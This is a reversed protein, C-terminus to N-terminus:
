EYRLAVMPDVKTARRAPVFCAVLATALLIFSVGVYTAPDTATVEFLLSALLRSLAFAGALGLAIGILTMILGQGVILKLIDRREAGLAIRIGVEHTRQSVAYSIVGYLGIVSLLMGMAAFWGLLAAYFRPQAVVDGLREDMTMVNEVVVRPDVDLLKNRVTATLSSPDASARVALSIFSDPSQSFPIYLFPNPEQDYQRVDSVVGIVIPKQDKKWSWLFRKGVPDEGPWALQAVRQSVVIVPQTEATDADTFLRGSILRIGMTQFYEPTVPRPEIEMESDPDGALPGELMQSRKNSTSFGGMTPLSGALAADIVGPTAQLREVVERAFAAQEPEKTRSLLRLEMSLVNEANFGIDISTLRIFSNIMLGAGVLLIVALAVESIVLFSRFGRLPSSATTASQKLSTQLDPKSAHLSPLLGFLIGTLLSAALTFLFVREDLSIEVMRTMWKPTLWVILKLSWMVLLFALAGGALSLVVSETLMQGILRRRNAGLVARIAIEKQRGVGHALLLNAVNVCAILLVFGVAGLLILLPKEADGVFFGKISVANLSFNDSLRGTFTSPQGANQRIQEAVVELESRAQDLTTEPKLRAISYLWSTGWHMRTRPNPGLPTWFEVRPIDPLLDFKFEPPMVGVIEVPGEEDSITRGIIDPDSGFRRQWLGHSLIVLRPRNPEDEGELFARGLIPAVGLVSFFNSTVRSGFIMEPGDAGDITLRTYAFAAVSEFSQNLDRLQSLAPYSYVSHRDDLDASRKIMVLRDPESYPLSRLLFANVVSFVATNAGIGLGLTLVAVITFGPKKWFLRLAYQLDHWLSKM